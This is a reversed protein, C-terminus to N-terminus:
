SRRWSYFQYENNFSKAGEPVVPMNTKITKLKPYLKKKLSKLFEWIRIVTELHCQDMLLKELLKLKLGGCEEIGRSM